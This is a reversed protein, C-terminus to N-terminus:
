ILHKFVFDRLLVSFAFFLCQSIQNLDYGKLDKLIIAVSHRIVTDPLKVRCLFVVALQIALALGLPRYAVEGVDSYEM